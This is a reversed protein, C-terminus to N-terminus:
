TRRKHLRRNHNLLLGGRSLTCRYCEQSANKADNSVAGEVVGQALEKCSCVLQERRGIGGKEDSLM